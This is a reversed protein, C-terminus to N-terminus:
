AQPISGWLGQIWEWVWVVWNWGFLVFLLIILIILSPHKKFVGSVAGWVSGAILFVIAIVAFPTLPQMLALASGIADSLLSDM